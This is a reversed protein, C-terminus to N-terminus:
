EKENLVDERKKDYEQQTILQKDLLGKLEILQKEKSSGSASLLARIKEGLLDDIFAVVALILGLIAFLFYFIEGTHHVNVINQNTLTELTQQLGQHIYFAFIVEAILLTEGAFHVAKKDTKLVTLFCGALGFCIILISYFFNVSVSATQTGSSVSASGMEILYLEVRTTTGSAVYSVAPVIYSVVFFVAVVIACLSLILNFIKQSKM